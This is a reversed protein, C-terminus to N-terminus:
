ILKYLWYYILAQSRIIWIAWLNFNKSNNVFLSSFTWLNANLAILPFSKSLSLLLLSLDVCNPSPIQFITVYPVSQCLTDDVPVTHCPFVDSNYLNAFVFRFILVFKWPGRIKQNSGLNPSFAFGLRQYIM